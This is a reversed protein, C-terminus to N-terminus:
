PIARESVEAFDFESITLDTSYEVYSRLSEKRHDLLKMLSAVVDRVCSISPAFRCWKWWVDFLMDLIIKLFHLEQRKM